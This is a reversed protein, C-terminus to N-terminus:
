WAARRARSWAPRGPGRLAPAQLAVRGALRGSSRGKRGFPKGATLETRLVDRACRQYIRGSTAAACPCAAETAGALSALSRQDSLTSDGTLCADDARAPAQLVVCSLALVFSLTRM